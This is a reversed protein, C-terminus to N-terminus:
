VKVDVGLFPCDYIARMMSTEINYGAGFGIKAPRYSGLFQSVHMLKEFMLLKCYVLNNYSVKKLESVKIEKVTDNPVDLLKIHM